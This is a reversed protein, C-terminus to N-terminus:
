SCSFIPTNQQRIIDPHRVKRLPANNKLTYRHTGIKFTVGNGCQGSRGAGAGKRDNAYAPLLRKGETGSQEGALAADAEGPSVTIMPTHHIGIAAIGSVPLGDILHDQMGVDCRAGEGALIHDLDVAVAAQQHYLAEEVEKQTMPRSKGCGALEALAGKDVALQIKDLRFGNRVDDGRVARSAQRKGQGV